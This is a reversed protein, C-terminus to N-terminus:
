SFIKEGFCYSNMRHKENFECDFKGKQSITIKYLYHIVRKVGAKENNSVLGNGKSASEKETVLGEGALSELVEVVQRYM